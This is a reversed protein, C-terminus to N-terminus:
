GDRFKNALREFAYAGLLALEEETANNKLMNARCCVTQINGKVYGLNSDIRDISPKDPNRKLGATYDLPTKFISCLEPLEIDDLTLTHEYNRSRASAKTNKFLQRRWFDKAKAEAKASRSKAILKIQKKQQYAKRSRAAWKLKREEPSLKAVHKRQRERWLARQKEVKPDIELM